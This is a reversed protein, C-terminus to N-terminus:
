GVRQIKLSQNNKYWIIIKALNRKLKAGGKKLLWPPVWTKQDRTSLLLFAILFSIVSIDYETNM